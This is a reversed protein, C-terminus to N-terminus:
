GAIVQFSKKMSTLNRIGSDTVVVLDEIRVGGFGPLYIGPEVTVVMGAELVDESRPNLTPAEHIELGVGHGLGHGFADGYGAQSIVDRAAADVDRAAVGPRITKLAAQQAALVVEFVERHRESSGGFCVTRTLDSHYAGRKVGMDLLAYENKRLKRTGPVAHPLSSNPGSAFITAFAEEVDLDLMRKRIARAVDKEQVGTQLHTLAESCLQENLKQNRGIQRIEVAEKVARLRRVIASADILAARGAARKYNQFTAYTLTSGEFGLKKVNLRKLLDRLKGVTHQTMKEVSCSKISKVAKELYRFDTLFVSEKRTVLLISNSCAFETFYYSTVPNNILFADLGERQLQRQLRKIREVPGEALAPTKSM